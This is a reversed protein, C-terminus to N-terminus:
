MCAPILVFNYSKHDKGEARGYSFSDCIWLGLYEIIGKENKTFVRIPIETSASELLPYNQQLLQNAVSEFERNEKSFERGGTEETIIKILKNKDDYFFSNDFNNHATIIVSTAGITQSGEVSKQNCVALGLKLLDQKTTFKSGM